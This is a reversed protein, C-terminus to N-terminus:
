IKNKNKYVPCRIQINNNKIQIYLNKCKFCIEVSILSNYNYVCTIDYKERM